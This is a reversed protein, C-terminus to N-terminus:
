IFDHIGTPDSQDRRNLAAAKFRQLSSSGSVQSSRSSRSALSRSITPNGCLANLYIHHASLSTTLYSSVSSSGFSPAYRGGQVYKITDRQNPSALQEHQKTLWRLFENDTAARRVGPFEARLAAVEKLPTSTPTASRSSRTALVSELAEMQYTQLELALGSKRAAPPTWSYHKVFQTVFERKVDQPAYLSAYLLEQIIDRYLSTDLPHLGLPGENPKSALLSRQIIIRSVFMLFHTASITPLSQGWPLPSERELQIQKWFYTFLFTSKKWLYLSSKKLALNSMETPKMGKLQEWDFGPFARQSPNLYCTDSLTRWCHTLCHKMDSTFLTNDWKLSNLLSEPINDDKKGQLHFLTWLDISQPGLTDFARTFNRAKDLHEEVRSTDGSRHAYILALHRHFLFSQMCCMEVEDSPCPNPGEEILPDNSMQLESEMMVRVVESTRRTKATRAMDLIRTRRQKASSTKHQFPISIKCYYSFAKTYRYCCSLYEASLKDDYMYQSRPSEEITSPTFTVDGDTVFSLQMHSSGEATADGSESRPKPRKLPRRPLPSSPGNATIDSRRSISSADSRPRKSSEKTLTEEQDTSDDATTTCSPEDSAIRSPASQSVTENPSRQTSPGGRPQKHFGWRRTAKSFQDPSLNFSLNTKLYDIVQDRTFNQSLYLDGILEKHEDVAKDSLGSARPARSHVFSIERPAM